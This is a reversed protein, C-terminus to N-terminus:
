KVGAKLATDPDIKKLAAPVAAVIEKSSRGPLLKVLMPVAAKAKPGYEGLAEVVDSRGHGQPDLLCGILAPIARDPEAQIRVLATAAPGCLLDDKQELAQFLAPVAARARPGLSALDTVAEVRRGEQPVYNIHIGPLGNLQAILAMRMKSDNTDSFMQNTLSPIIVENLMRLAQDSSQQGTLQESWYSIPQGRYLAVDNGLFHILVWIGAVLVCLGVVVGIALRLIRTLIMVFFARGAYANVWNPAV